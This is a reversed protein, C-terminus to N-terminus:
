NPPPGSDARRPLSFVLREGEWVEARAADAHQELMRAAHDMVGRHSTEPLVEFYPAGGKLRHIYCIYAM